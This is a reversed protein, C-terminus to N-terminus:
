KTIGQEKLCRDYLFGYGQIYEDADLKKDKLESRMSSACNSRIESPRWQYWYFWLSTIVIFTILITKQFTTM